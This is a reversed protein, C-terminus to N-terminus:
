RFFIVPFSLKPGFRMASDVGNQIHKLQKDSIQSVNEGKEKDRGHYLQVKSQKGKSGPAYNLEFEISVSHNQDALRREFHTRKSVPNVITEKYAVQIKGLDAEVKFETKLRAHIIDLHLEGMGAWIFIILDILVIDSYVLWNNHYIVLYFPKTQTLTSM